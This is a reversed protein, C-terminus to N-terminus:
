GKKTYQVIAALCVLGLLLYAVIEQGIPFTTPVVFLILLWPALAVNACGSKSQTTITTPRKGPRQITTVTKPM